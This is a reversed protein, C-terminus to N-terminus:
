TSGMVMTSFAPSIRRWPRGLWATAMGLLGAIRAIGIAAACMACPEITSYVTVGVVPSKRDEHVLVTLGNALKFERHPIKVQSILQPVPTPKVQASASQAYAPVTLALPTAAALLLSLRLSKRM